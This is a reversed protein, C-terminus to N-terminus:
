VNSPLFAETIHELHTRNNPLQTIMIVDFRSNGTYNVQEIYYNAARGLSKQQGRTVAHRAIVPEPETRHKVEVFVLEEGHKCIIDIELKETKWNRVLIEYGKTLLYACAEEEGENGRKKRFNAM